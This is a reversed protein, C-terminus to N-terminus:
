FFVGLKSSPSQLKRSVMIDFDPQLPTKMQGWFCQSSREPHLTSPHETTESEKRGWLSYGALSRQGHSKRPLLVPTPQWQRRLATLFKRRFTKLVHNLKIQALLSNELHSAHYLTIEIWFYKEQKIQASRM